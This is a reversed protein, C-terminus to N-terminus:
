KSPPSATYENRYETGGRKWTEVVEPPDSTYVLQYDSDDTPLTGTTPQVLRYTGPTLEFVTHSCEACGQVLGSLMAGFVLGAALALPTKM